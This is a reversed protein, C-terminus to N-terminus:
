SYWKGGIRLVPKKRPPIMSETIEFVEIARQLDTLLDDRCAVSSFTGEMNSSRIGLGIATEELRRQLRSRRASKNGRHLFWEALKVSEWVKQKCVVPESNEGESWSFSAKGDRILFSLYFINEVSEAFDNPNIVFKFINIAENPLLKEVTLVNAATENESAQIDEEKLEQPKAAEGSKDLLIRQRQARKKVEASLPGM